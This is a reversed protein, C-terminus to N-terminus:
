IIKYNGLKDFYKNLNIIKKKKLNKIIENIGYNLSYKPSFKIVRKVKTFDVVYNEKIKIGQFM